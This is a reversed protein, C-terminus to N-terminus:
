RYTCPHKYGRRRIRCGSSHRAIPLRSARVADQKIPFPHQADKAQAAPPLAAATRSPHNLIFPKRKMLHFIAKKATYYCFIIFSHGFLTLFSLFRSKVVRSKYRNATPHVVAESFACIVRGKIFPFSPIKSM